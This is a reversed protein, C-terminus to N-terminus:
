RRGHAMMMARNRESLSAEQERITRGTFRLFVDELSPKRLHVCSVTLGRERARVVLDPIRREGRDVTLSLVGDHFRARGIGEERGLEDAFAAADGEIEMSVVDGGLTDKLRSPTDLAVFRGHDMIAVRACLFDAEEMYHTTLIITVGAEANLKRIYDWIHRRTQADLGLTPEDLFLVKPRHTLGRAIELRRKMGGSYKEVLTAAKDALEVLALVEDIRRNREAKGIGYMMTHFELNERGTLRGDLAPEQFVIGISQRVSDRDQAVDFGAVVASGSTPRLLTALMNITTTKGAGNPGLLGFLEGEAVAFSVGDVATFGNFTKVLSEARIADVTM